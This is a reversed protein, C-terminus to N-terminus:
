GPGMIHTEYKLSHTTPGWLKGHQKQQTGYGKLLCRAVREVSMGIKQWIKSMKTSGPRNKGM